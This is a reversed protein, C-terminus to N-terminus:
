PSSIVLTDEPDLVVPGSLQAVDQVRFRPVSGAVTLMGGPMIFLSGVAVEPHPVYVVPPRFGVTIIASDGLGPVVPPSWNAPNHWSSDVSGAWLAPFDLLTLSFNGLTLGDDDMALIAHAGSSQLRFTDLRISNGGTVRRLLMGAPSYLEFQPYTSWSSVMRITIVKGAFGQFVFSKMSARTRITDLLTEGFAIPRAGVPDATRQIYLQFSGYDLGDNDMAWVSYTGTEHIGVTDIRIWPVPSGAGHSASAGGIRVGQPSYVEIRPYTGWESAMRVTVVEGATGNFLYPKMAARTRVTDVKTEGYVMMEAGLPNGTRQLYFDYRGFQLGDNDMVWIWYMGTGPLRLTDLRISQTSSSASVVRLLNGGQDYVEFRPANNWSSVMRATILEDASGLFFYRHVPDGATLTDTVCQGYSIPQQSLAAAPTILSLLFVLALGPIRISGILSKM